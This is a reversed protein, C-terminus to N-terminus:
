SASGVIPALLRLGGDGYVVEGLTQDGQVRQRELIIGLLGQGLHHTLRPAIHLSELVTYEQGSDATEILEIELM